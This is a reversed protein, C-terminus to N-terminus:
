ARKNVCGALIKNEIQAVTQKRCNMLVFSLILAEYGTAACQDIVTKVQEDTKSVLHM